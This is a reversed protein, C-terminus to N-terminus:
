GRHAAATLRRGASRASGYADGLARAVMPVAHQSRPARGYAQKFADALEPVRWIMLPEFHAPGLDAFWDMLEALHWSAPALKLASVDRRKPLEGENL